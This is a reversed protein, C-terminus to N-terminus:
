IVTVGEDDIFRVLIIKQGKIFCPALLIFSFLKFDSAAGRASLEALALM